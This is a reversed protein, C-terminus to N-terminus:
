SSGQRLQQLKELARQLNTKAEEYFTPRLEIARQFCKAAEEYQGAMFYYVGINNYAQAEDGAKMFADLAEDYRKQGALAMGLLNNLKENKPDRALGQQLCSIARPYDKLDLFAQALPPISSVHRPDVMLAKRLQVVAKGPQGSELCTVGLLHLSNIREPDQGLVTQFEDIALPYNKEQLLVLGMAEHAQLMEPRHVLVLALEQKAAQWQGNFLFLVAVKYHLDYRDPHDRLIALYDLLSSEYDGGQVAADGLAEQRDPPLAQKDGKFRAKMKNWITDNSSNSAALTELASPGTAGQQQACGTLLMLMALLWAVSALPKINKM